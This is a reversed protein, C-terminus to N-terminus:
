EQVGGKLNKVKQVEEEQGQKSECSIKVGRKEGREREKVSGARWKSGIIIKKGTRFLVSTDVCQDEKKKPKM